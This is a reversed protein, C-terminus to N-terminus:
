SGYDTLLATLSAQDPIPIGITLKEQEQPPLAAVWIEYIELPQEGAAAFLALRGEWTGLVQTTETVAVPTETPQDAPRDLWVGVLLAVICVAVVAGRLLREM